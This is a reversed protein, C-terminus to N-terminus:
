FRRSWNFLLVWDAFAADGHQGPIGSAQDAVSRHRARLVAVPIAISFVDKEHAFVLQPEISLAYGPRRFGADQGIADRVPVGEIRGGIGASVGEWAPINIMTGLRAIYQDAISMIEEGKLTRYTEVGNKEQPNFLYSASVYPTFLGLRKFAMMDLIFGFGGDGPQISQDNTRVVNTFTDDSPDDTTGKSDRVAVSDETGPDGTPLKIGFGLSINQDLHDDVDLLWHRAVISVDGIGQSGTQNEGNPVRVIDGSTNRIVGPISRKAILFPLSFSISTQKSWGRTFGFDFLHVTNKVQAEGSQRDDDESTGTFHRDSFQYRYGFNFQWQDPALYPSGQAGVM